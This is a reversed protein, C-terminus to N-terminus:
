APGASIAGAAWREWPTWTSREKGDSQSMDPHTLHKICQGSQEQQGHAHARLVRSGQAKQDQGGVQPAPTKHASTTDWPSFLLQKMTQRCASANRRYAPPTNLPAEAM